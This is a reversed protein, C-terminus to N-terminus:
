KNRIFEQYEDEMEKSNFLMAPKIQYPEEALFIMMYM